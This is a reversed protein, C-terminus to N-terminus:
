GSKKLKQLIHKYKMEQAKLTYIYMDILTEDDAFEYNRRNQEMERNIESLSNILEASAEAEARQPDEHIGLRTMIPYLIKKIDM